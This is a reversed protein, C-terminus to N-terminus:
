ATPGHGRLVDRRTRFENEDIEGRAYREALIQEPTSRGGTPEVPRSGPTLYRVALVVVAIILVLFFLSSFVMAFYGWVGMHDNWYM